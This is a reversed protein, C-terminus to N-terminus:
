CHRRPKGHKALSAASTTSRQSSRQGSLSILIRGAHLHLHISIHKILEKLIVRILWELTKEAQFSSTPKHRRLNQFTSRMNESKRHQFLISFTRITPHIFYVELVVSASLIQGQSSWGEVIYRQDSRGVLAAQAIAYCPVRHAPAPNSDREAESAKQDCFIRIVAPLVVQPNFPRAHLLSKFVVLIRFESNVILILRCIPMRLATPLPMSERTCM